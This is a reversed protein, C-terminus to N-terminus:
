KEWMLVIPEWGFGQCHYDYHKSDYGTELSNRYEGYYQMGSANCVALFVNCTERYGQEEEELFGAMALRTGDFALYLNSTNFGPLEKNQIQSIFVIEYEENEKEALVVAEIVGEERPKHVMNVLYTDEVYIQNGYDERWDMVVIKQLTEMTAIDIVTIVYEGNEKAHLLIRDKKGNLHLHIIDIQPDLSYVMKLRDVDVSIRDTNEESEELTRDFPLQYIGYGGPILGTDVVVGDRSHTNFTFYLENEAIANYMWMYFYDSEGTGGGTHYINGQENKGVSISHREEDLVPIKFFDSLKEMAYDEQEQVTGTKYLSKWRYIDTGPVELGIIYQYYDIYDKLYIEREAEEGSGITDALEQYAKAIGDAKGQLIKDHVMSTDLSLDMSLGNDKELEEYVPTISFDYETSAEEPNGMRVMTTWRLRDQYMTRIEMALDHLADKKGWATTETLTVKDRSSYINVAMFCTGGLTLILVMFMIITAKRM